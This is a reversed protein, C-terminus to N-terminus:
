ATFDLLAVCHKSRRVELAIQANRDTIDKRLQGTGHVIGGLQCILYATFFGLTVLIM